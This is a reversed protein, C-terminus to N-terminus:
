LIADSSLVINISLGAVVKLIYNIFGGFNEEKWQSLIRRLTWYCARNWKVGNHPLHKGEAYCVVNLM